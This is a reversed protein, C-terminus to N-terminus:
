VGNSVPWSTHGSATFSRCRSFVAARSYRWHPKACLIEDCSLAMGEPQASSYAKGKKRREISTSLFMQAIRYKHVLCEDTRDVDFEVDVALFGDQGHGL